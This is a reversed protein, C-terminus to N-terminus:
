DNQQHDVDTDRDAFLENKPDFRIVNRSHGDGYSRGFDNMNNGSKLGRVVPESRIWRDLSVTDGSEDTFHFERVISECGSTSSFDISQGKNQLVSTKNSSTSTPDSSPQKAKSVWREMMTASSPRSKKNAHLIPSQLKVPTSTTEDNVEVKTVFISSTIQEAAPKVFPPPRYKSHAGFIRRNELDRSSGSSPNASSPTPPERKIFPSSISAKLRKPFPDFLPVSRQDSKDMPTQSPIHETSIISAAVRLRRDRVKAKLTNDINNTVSTVKIMEEHTDLLSGISDNCLDLGALLDKVDTRSRVFALNKTAGLEKTKRSKSLMLSGATERISSLVSQYMKLNYMHELDSQQQRLQAENIMAAKLLMDDFDRVYRSRKSRSKRGVATSLNMSLEQQYNSTPESVPHFYIQGLKELALCELLGWADKGTLSLDPRQGFKIKFSRESFCDIWKQMPNSGSGSEVYLDSYGDKAAKSSPLDPFLSMRNDLRKWPVAHNRFLEEAVEEHVKSDTLDIGLLRGFVLQKQSKNDFIKALGVDTVQTGSLNLYELMTPGSSGYTVSRILHSLGIDGIKLQSLNLIRLRSLASLGSM